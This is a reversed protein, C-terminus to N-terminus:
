RLAGARRLMRITAELDGLQNLDVPMAPLADLAPMGDSNPMGRALPYEFTEGAFYAQARESLLFAVFQRAEDSNRASKLVAAGSVLMAGGIDGAGDYGAPIHNGIALNGGREHQFRHLYYHNVLGFDIEGDHIAQVIPMNRPYVRVGNAIIDRLWQETRKEGLEHRMATVMAQFSANAPSWGVRGRWRPETLELVTQPLESAAIRDTAYALTRMRGTVGVWRQHPDRYAYPVRDLIDQPLESLLGREALLGLGGPDQAFFMDAPSRRGEEIVLAALTGTRGYKVKVDIGTERTFHDILESVLTEARGCYIVLERRPPVLGTAKGTATGEAQQQSGGRGPQSMAAHLTVAIVALALLGITSASWAFRSQPMRM